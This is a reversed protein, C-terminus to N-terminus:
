SLLVGRGKSVQPADSEDAKKTRGVESAVVLDKCNSLINKVMGGQVIFRLTTLGPDFCAIDDM